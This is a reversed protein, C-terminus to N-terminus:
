GKFWSIATQPDDFYQTVFGKVPDDDVLQEIGLQAILDSSVLIALKKVGAKRMDAFIVNNVWDQLQPHIPFLFARADTLFASPQNALAAKTQESVEQKFQEDTLTATPSHWTNLQYKQEPSFEITLYQSQYCTM